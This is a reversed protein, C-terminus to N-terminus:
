ALAVDVRLIFLATRWGFLTVLVALVLRAVIEHRTFTALWLYLPFVVLTYRGLSQLSGTSLPVLVSREDFPIGTHRRAAYLRAGRTLRSRWGRTRRANTRASM